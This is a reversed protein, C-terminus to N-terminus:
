ILEDLLKIANLLENSPAIKNEKCEKLQEEVIENLIKIIEKM